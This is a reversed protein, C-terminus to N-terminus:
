YGIFGVTGISIAAYDFNGMTLQDISTEVSLKKRDSENDVSFFFTLNSEKM